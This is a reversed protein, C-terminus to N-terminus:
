GYTCSVAEVCYGDPNRIDEENGTFTCETPELWAQPILKRIDIAVTNNCFANNLCQPGFETCYESDYRIGVANNAFTSDYARMWGGNIVLAGVDWGSFVCHYAYVSMGATLATGGDGIFSLNRIVCSHDESMLVLGATFITRDKQGFIEVQRHCALPVDYTAAPLKVTVYYEAPDLQDIEDFVAQLEEATEM